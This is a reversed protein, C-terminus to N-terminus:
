EPLDIMFIQIFNEGAYNKVLKGTKDFTEVPCNYAIKKGDPAIVPAHRNEGDGYPTLFVSKGFRDGEALSTKVVGNNSICIIADGKPHWRLGAETGEELFTVQRPCLAPIESQDSGQADIVFIQSRGKKDKGYYAIKKGDPSGRVIGGAWSHTLRRIRIGEPPSPYRTANGADSTTIDIDLPVDVVFLSEEYTIGDENRVKGIFARMTGEPDVWADGYAKEIEGPKAQEKPVIPILVAFYHSAPSPAEGRPEMYGVTRDYEPLLFDDYTFGIRNGRLCYEHRHTGGRHAGPTTDRDTATDRKDIWSLAFGGNEDFMFYQGGREVIGNNLRIRAGNRNSRAYAGRESVESVFPGHIFVVELAAQSFSVAGVGPAPAAGTVIVAPKYLVISRGTALELVEITQGHEIGPGVTERTDYCLYRGDASFNDNNDLWHSQTSFTLQKEMCAGEAGANPGSFFLSFSVSLLFLLHVRYV